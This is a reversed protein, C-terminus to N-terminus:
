IIYITVLLRPVFRLLVFLRPVLRLLVFHPPLGFCTDKSRCTKSLNDGLEFFARDSFRRSFADALAAESLAFFEPDKL